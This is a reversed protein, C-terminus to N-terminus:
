IIKGLTTNKKKKPSYPFKIGLCFVTKTVNPSFIMKFHLINGIWMIEYWPKWTSMETHQGQTIFQCLGTMVALKIDTMLMHKGENCQSWIFSVIQLHDPVSSIRFFMPTKLIDKWFTKFQWTYYDGVTNTMGFALKAKPGCCMFPTPSICAFRRSNWWGTITDLYRQRHNAPGCTMAYNIINKPSNTGAKTQEQKKRGRATDKETNRRVNWFTRNVWYVWLKREFPADSPDDHLRTRWLCCSPFSSIRPKLLSWLWYLWSQVASRCIAGSFPKVKRSKCHSWHICTTRQDIFSRWPWTM